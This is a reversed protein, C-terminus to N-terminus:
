LKQAIFIMNAGMKRVVPSIKGTLLQHLSKAFFSQLWRKKISLFPVLGTVIDVTQSHKISYKKQLQKEVKNVTLFHENAQVRWENFPAWTNKKMFVSEAVVKVIGAVNAYNPSSLLLLGGPKLLRTIDALGKKWHSFHELTEIIIIVDFQEDAYLSEKEFDAVILNKLHPYTKKTQAVCKRSIEVGHCHANKKHCYNLVHGHGFGIELVSKNAINLSDILHKGLANLRGGYTMPSAILDQNADFFAAQSKM